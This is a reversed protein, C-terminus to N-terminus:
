PHLKPTSDHHPGHDWAGGPLVRRALLFLILTDVAVRVTWAIAAGEIGRVRILWWLLALYFPLESLHAKGTLDPRGGGQLLAFPMYALGSLFVGMALWQVVRYSHQAFDPGLWLRLGDRALIVACLMVPGMVLAIAKVSRTFLHVIRKRDQAFSLSFAPFMVGMLASPLILFKTVVENPTAYYAVATTSILAGIVFRDVTAMLPTVMNSVMMWGSFRLLPGVASRNWAISRGLEPIVRLCLLLHAAWAIIRGAV